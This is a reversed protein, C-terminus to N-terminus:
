ACRCGGRFSLGGLCDAYDLYLEQAQAIPKEFSAGPPQLFGHYACGTLMEAYRCEIDIQRKVRRFSAPYSYEYGQSGDM